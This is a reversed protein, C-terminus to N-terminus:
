RAADVEDADLLEVLVRQDLRQLVEAEGFAQEEVPAREVAGLLLELALVQRAAEVAGLDHRRHRRLLAVADVDGERDGFAVGAFILSIRMTPLLANVSPVSFPRNSSLSPPQSVQVSFPSRYERALSM